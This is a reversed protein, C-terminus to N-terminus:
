TLKDILAIHHREHAALRGALTGVTEPKRNMKGGRSWNAQELLNLWRKRDELYRAMHIEWELNAYNERDFKRWPHLITVSPNERALFEEVVVLWQEQCARLHALTRHRSQECRAATPEPSAPKWSRVKEALDRLSKLVDAMEDQTTATPSTSADM